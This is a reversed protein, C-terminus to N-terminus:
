HYKVMFDDSLSAIYSKEQQKIRDLAMERSAYNHREMFIRLGWEMLLTSTFFETYKGRQQEPVFEDELQQMMVFKQEDDLINGIDTFYCLESSTKWQRETQDKYRLFIGHLENRYQKFTDLIEQKSLSVCDLVEVKSLRKMETAVESLKELKSQKKLSAEKRQVAKKRIVKKLQLLANMSDEEQKASAGNKKPVKAKRKEKEEPSEVMLGRSNQKSSRPLVERKGAVYTPPSACRDPSPQQQNYAASNEHPSTQQESDSFMDKGSDNKAQHAEAPVNTNTPDYEEDDDSGFLNKEVKVPKGTPTKRVDLKNQPSSTPTYSIKVPTDGTGPPTYPDPEGSGAPKGGDVIKSPKYTRKIGPSTGNRTVPVYEEDTNRASKRVPEPHYEEVESAVVRTSNSLKPKDPEPAVNTNERKLHEIEKSLRQITKGLNEVKDFIARGQDSIEVYICTDYLNTFKEKFLINLNNRYSKDRFEYKMQLYPRDSCIMHYETNLQFLPDKDHVVLHKRFLDYLKRYVFSEWIDLTLFKNRAPFRCENPGDHDPPKSQPLVVINALIYKEGFKLKEVLQSLAM